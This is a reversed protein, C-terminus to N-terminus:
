GRPLNGNIVSPERSSFPSSHSSMGSPKPRNNSSHSEQDVSRSPHHHPKIKAYLQQSRYMPPSGAPSDLPSFAPNSRTGFNVDSYHRSPQLDDFNQPSFSGRHSRDHDQYGQPPQVDHFHHQPRSEHYRQSRGATNFNNLSRSSRTSRPLSLHSRTSAVDDDSVLDAVM